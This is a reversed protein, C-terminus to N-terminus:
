IGKNPFKNLERFMPYSLSNLLTSPYLLTRLLEFNCISSTFLTQLYCEHTIFVGEGLGTRLRLFGERKRKM